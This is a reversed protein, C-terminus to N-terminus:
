CRKERQVGHCHLASLGRFRVLSSRLTVDAIRCFSVQELEKRTNFRTSFVAKLWVLAGHCHLSSILWSIAGFFQRVGRQFGIFFLAKGVKVRQISDPASFLRGGYRFVM